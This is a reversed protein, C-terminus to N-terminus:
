VETGAVPSSTSSSPFVRKTIMTPVTWVSGVDSKSIEYFICM